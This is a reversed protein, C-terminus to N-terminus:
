LKFKDKNPVRFKAKTEKVAKEIASFIKEIDEKTYEYVQRNSCNGLVRLREIITNTRYTALRKFREQATEKKLDKM